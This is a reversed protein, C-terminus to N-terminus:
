KVVVASIDDGLPALRLTIGAEKQFDAVAVKVNPYTECFYDHIVLVGGEVLRPFFFRLGELIPKYLDADLSVFCFKEDLGAATEPFYGKKVVCLEPHPMRALVLGESTGKFLPALQSPDGGDERAIDRGDFGTFTDFLYLKRGPFHKNIVRAFDGTFVGLEAAAGELGREAACEAFRALFLERSRLALNVYFSDIKHPPVGLAALRAPMSVAGPLAAVIIRDYEGALAEELGKVPLGCFVTGRKDPAADAFCTIECGAHLDGAQALEFIRRGTRGAGFIITKEKRARNM